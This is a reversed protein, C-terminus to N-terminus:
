KNLDMKVHLIQAFNRSICVNSNQNKSIFFLMWQKNSEMSFFFIFLFYFFFLRFNLYFLFLFLFLVCNIFFFHNHANENTRSNLMAGFHIALILEFPQLCTVLQWSSIIWETASEANQFFKFTREVNTYTWWTVWLHRVECWLVFAFTNM